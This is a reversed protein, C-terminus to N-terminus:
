QVRIERRQARFGRVELTLVLGRVPRRASAHRLMRRGTTTMAIAISRRAPGVISFGGAALLVPTSRADSGHHTRMRARMASLVLRGSCRAVRCDLHLRVYRGAVVAPTSELAILATEAHTGNPGFPGVPPRSPPAGAMGAGSLDATGPNANALQASTVVTESDGSSGPYTGSAVCSPTATCSVYQLVPVYGPPGGPPPTAALSTWASNTESAIMGPTKEGTRYAGTRYYGVAACAGAAYCSVSELAGGRAADADIGPLVAPEVPSWAGDRQDVVAARTVRESSGGEAAYTGVAACWGPEACSLSRLEVAGVEVADPPPRLPKATWIGAREQAALGEVGNSGSVDYRGIASCEGPGTCSVQTLEANDWASVGPQLDEAEQWVGNVEDLVFAEERSSSYTGVVACWGPASCSVASMKMGPASANAPPIVQRAQSWVGGSEEVIM